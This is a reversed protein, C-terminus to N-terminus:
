TVCEGTFPCLKLNNIVLVSSLLILVSLLYLGGSGVVQKVLVHCTPFQLFFGQPVCISTWQAGVITVVVAESIRCSCLTHSEDPLQDCSLM